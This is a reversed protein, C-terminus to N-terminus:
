IEEIGVSWNVSVNQTATWNSNSTSVLAPRIATNTVSYNASAINEGAGNTFGVLAGGVTSVANPLRPYPYRFNIESNITTKTGSTATMTLSNSQRMLRHPFDRYHNGQANHLSTGTPFNSINDVVIAQSYATAGKVNTRLVAGMVNVDARVGDIYINVNAVSGSNVVKM